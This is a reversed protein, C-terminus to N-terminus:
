ESADASSDRQEVYYYPEAELGLRRRVVLGKAESLTVTFPFRGKRRAVMRAGRPDAGVAGARRVRPRLIEQLVTEKRPAGM